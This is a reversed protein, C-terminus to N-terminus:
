AVRKIERELAPVIVQLVAVVGMHVLDNTQKMSKLLDDRALKRSRLVRKRLLDNLLDDDGFLRESASFEVFELNRLRPSKVLEKHVHENRQSLVHDFLSLPKGKKPRGTRFVSQHLRLVDANDGFAQTFLKCLRRLREHVMYVYSWYSTRLVGYYHEHRVKATAPKKRALHEIQDLTLLIDLLETVARLPPFFPHFPGDAVQLPKRPQDLL